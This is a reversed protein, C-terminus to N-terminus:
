GPRLQTYAIAQQHTKGLMDYAIICTRGRVDKITVTIDAGLMSRIATDGPKFPNEPRPAQRVRAHQWLKSIAARPVTGISQRLHKADAPKGEAYVYGPALPASVRGFSAKRLKCRPLAAKIRARRCEDLAKHEKQPPTTYVTLTTSM